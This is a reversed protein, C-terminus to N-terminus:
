MALALAREELLEKESAAMMGRSFEDVALDKVVTYKGEEDSRPNFPPLFLFPTLPLPAAPRKKKRAKVTNPTRSVCPV